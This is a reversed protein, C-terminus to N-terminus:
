GFILLLVTLVFLYFSIATFVVSVTTFSALSACQSVFVLPLGSVLAGCICLHVFFYLPSLGHIQIPTKGSSFLSYGNFCNDYWRVSIGLWRVVVPLIETFSGLDDDALALAWHQTGTRTHGHRDLRDISFETRLWAAAAPDCKFAPISEM